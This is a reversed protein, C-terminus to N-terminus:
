NGSKREENEEHIEIGIHNVDNRKRDEISLDFDRVKNKTAYLSVISDKTTGVLKTTKTKM